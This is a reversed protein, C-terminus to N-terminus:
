FSNLWPRLLRRIVMFKCTQRKNWSPLPKPLPQQNPFGWRYFSRLDGRPCSLEIVGASRQSNPSSRVETFTEIIFRPLQRGAFRRLYLAFIMFSSPWLLPVLLRPELHSRTAVKYIYSILEAFWPIYFVNMYMNVSTNNGLNLPLRPIYFDRRRGIFPPELARTFPNVVKSALVSQWLNRTEESKCVKVYENLFGAESTNPPGKRNESDRL